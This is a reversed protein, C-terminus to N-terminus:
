QQVGITLEDISCGVLVMFRGIVIIDHVKSMCDDLVLTSYDCSNHLVVKDCLVGDPQGRRRYQLLTM